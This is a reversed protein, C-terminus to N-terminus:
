NKAKKHLLNLVAAVIDKASPLGVEGTYVTKYLHQIVENKSRLEEPVEYELIAHPVQWPTHQPNTRAYLVV